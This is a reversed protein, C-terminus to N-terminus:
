KAADMARVVADVGRQIMADDCFLGINRQQDDDAITMCIWLTEPPMVRPMRDAWEVLTWAETDEFLEDVGLETFEDEDAVRYADLHHLNIQGQHTQLLTFTPSTVADSDIDAARAIAQVFTTKGAGLTGVLGIVCSAPLHAVIAEALQTLKPLDVADFQAVPQGFPPTTM